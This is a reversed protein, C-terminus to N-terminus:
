KESKDAKAYIIKPMTEFYKLLAPSLYGENATASDAYKNGKYEKGLWVLKKQWDPFESDAFSLRFGKRADPIDIVMDTIITEAGAIFRENDLGKELDSFVWTGDHWSPFIVKIGNMDASGKTERIAQRIRVRGSFYQITM